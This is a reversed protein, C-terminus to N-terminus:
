GSIYYVMLLPTSSLTPFLLKDRWRLDLMDDAFGLLIATCISIIAAMLSFVRLYRLHLSFISKIRYLLFHKKYNLLRDATIYILTESLWQFFPFPIVFILYVVAAVFGLPEAVPTREVQFKESMITLLVLFYAVVLGQM